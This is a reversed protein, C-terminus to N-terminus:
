HTPTRTYPEKAKSLARKSIIGACPTHENELQVIVEEKEALKVRVQPLGTGPLSLLRSRSRLSPLSRALSRALSLRCFFISLRLLPGGYIRIYVCILGPAYVCRILLRTRRHRHSHSHSHSGAQRGAQRHTHTHTHTHLWRGLSCNCRSESRAPHSM